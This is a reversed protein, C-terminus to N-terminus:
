LIALSKEPILQNTQFEEHLRQVVMHLNKGSHVWGRQRMYSPGSDIVDFVKLLYPEVGLEAALPQLERVLRILDKKLSVVQNKEVDIIKAQLGYRTARWKNEYLKWREYEIPHPDAEFQQEFKKFLTYILASAALTETLTPMADCIRVEITGFGPHPRIDWWIDRFSDISRTDLLNQVFERYRQWDPFYYPIGANPLEEFIKIRSSALGTDYMMWYPSSASIAILHPLYPLLANTIYLSKDADDVGIHVHIGFILFQRVPWQIRQLLNLYRPNSTIKQKRWSSFPHTGSLNIFVGHHRAVEQLQHLKERIDEELEEFSHCIRTNIEVTCEFLEPKFYEEPLEKLIQPARSVLDGTNPDILQVEIELGITNRSSANFDIM